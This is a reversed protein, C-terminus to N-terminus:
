IILSFLDAIGLKDLKIFSFVSYIPRYFTFYRDDKEINLIQFSFFNFLIALRLSLFLRFWLSISRPAIRSLKISPALSLLLPSIFSMEAHEGYVETIGRSM